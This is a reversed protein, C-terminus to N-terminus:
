GGDKYVRWKEDELVSKQFRIIVYTNNVTYCMVSNCKKEQDFTKGITLWQKMNEKIFVTQLKWFRETHGFNNGHKIIKQQQKSCNISSYNLYSLSCHLLNQCKYLWWLWFFSCRWDTRKYVRRGVM